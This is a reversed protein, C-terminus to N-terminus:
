ESIAVHKDHRSKSIIVVPTLGCYNDSLSALCTFKMLQPCKKCKTFSHASNHIVSFDSYHLKLHYGNVTSICELSKKELVINM